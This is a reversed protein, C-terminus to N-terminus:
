TAASVISAENILLTRASTDVLQLATIIDM